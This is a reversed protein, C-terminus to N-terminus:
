GNMFLNLFLDRFIMGITFLLLFAFGVLLAGEKAKGPLDRRRASEVLLIAVNGGDLVPIPLLNLVGLILSLLATFGLFPKWGSRMADGSIRGLTVPGAMQRLSTALYRVRKWNAKLSERIAAGVGSERIVKPGDLGLNTATMLTAQVQQGDRRLLVDIPRPPTAALSASVEEVTRIPRGAVAIFRDGARLGAKAAVSGPQVGVILPEIFSSLGISRITGLRTRILQRAVAAEHKRGDRLYTIRIPTRPHMTSAAQVDSWGEMPVGDIAVIRDFPRLGAAAAPTNPSVAAVLTGTSSADVGAVNVIAVLTVALLLNMFPGALLILMRQWRPKAQLDHPFLEADDPNDGALLVYGGLPVLSIRYDTSGRRFGFLRKGFGFSFILVRVRFLKAMLFHGAEHVLILFGVVIVFALLDTVVDVFVM